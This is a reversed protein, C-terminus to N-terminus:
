VYEDVCLEVLLVCVTVPQKKYSDKATADDAGLAIKVMAAVYSSTPVVILPM